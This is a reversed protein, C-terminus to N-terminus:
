LLLTTISDNLAFSSVGFGANLLCHNRNQIKLSVYKSIFVCVNKLSCSFM